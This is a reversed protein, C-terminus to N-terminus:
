NGASLLEKARCPHKGPFEKHSPESYISPPEELVWSRQGIVSTWHAWCSRLSRLTQDSNGPSGNTIKDDLLDERNTLLLVLLTSNRTPMDLMRLLFCDEIFQLFRVSSNHVRTNKEWCIDPYNFDGMLVLTQQDSVEKLLQLLTENARDDQSSPWYCIGLMLNGKPSSRELRSGFANLLVKMIEM